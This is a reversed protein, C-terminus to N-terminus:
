RKQGKMEAIQSFLYDQDRKLLIVREHTDTIIPKLEILTKQSDDLKTVRNELAYYAAIAPVVTGAIIAFLVGIIGAVQAWTATRLEGQEDAIRARSFSM